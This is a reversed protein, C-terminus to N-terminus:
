RGLILNCLEDLMRDQKKVIFNYRNIGEEIYFSRLNPEYLISLFRNKMENISLPDFYLAANGCVEPISSRAAALVPTKYFMSELPPYGFGENLTPFVFAFAESYLVNLEEEKIYEDFIFKDKNKIKRLIWNNKDIGLILVKKDIHKFTTFLEDLARIARFANKIWRRASTILFYNKSELKYRKLIKDIPPLKEKPTLKKLPSYLVKIQDLCIQPFESYISYKTHFSPVIIESNNDISEFLKNIQKKKLNIYEYTFLNKYIYKSFGQISNVTKLEYKDTPQEIARLGHITFFFDINELNLNHYRYPLATYFKNFKGSDILTSIEKKTEFSILKLKNKNILINIREDLKKQPDYIGTIVEDKKLEILRELVAKAYEGGGHYGAKNPQTAQLDFLINM